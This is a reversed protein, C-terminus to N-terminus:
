TCVCVYMCVSERGRGGGGEREGNFTMKEKKRRRRRRRVEVVTPDAPDVVVALKNNTDVVLYSYNDELVALPFITIDASATSIPLSWRTPLSM